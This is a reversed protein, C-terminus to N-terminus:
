STNMLLVQTPVLIKITPGNPEELSKVSLLLAGYFPHLTFSPCHLILHYCQYALLLQVISERLFFTHMYM